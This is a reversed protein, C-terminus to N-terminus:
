YKIVKRFKGGSKIFFIGKRDKFEKRNLVKGTVTYIKLANDSDQNKKPLVGEEVGAGEQSALTLSANPGGATGQHAALYLTVTGTGASPAVWTFDYTAQDPTSGHIGTGEGSHSYTATNSGAQLNGAPSNSGDLICLNFNRITGSGASVTIQYSQGPTYSQPFGSVNVTFSGSGHCSSACYGDSVPSGAYGTYNTFGMVISLLVEVM